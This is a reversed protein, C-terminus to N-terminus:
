VRWESQNSFHYEGLSMKHELVGGCAQVFFLQTLSAGYYFNNPFQENKTNNHKASEVIDPNSLSTM